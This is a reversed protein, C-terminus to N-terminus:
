LDDEMLPQRGDYTMRWQLDCKMGSFTQKWKLDEEKFPGRGYFTTKRLLNDEM